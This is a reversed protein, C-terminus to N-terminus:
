RRSGDEQEIRREDIYAFTMPDSLTSVEIDYSWERGPACPPHANTVTGRMRSSIGIQFSVEDGVGWKAGAMKERLNRLALSFGYACRGSQLCGGEDCFAPDDTLYCPTHAKRGRSEISARLPHWVPSHKAIPAPTMYPWAFGRYMWREGSM